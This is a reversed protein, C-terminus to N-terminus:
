TSGQYELLVFNSHDVDQSMCHLLLLQRGRITKAQFWAGKRLVSNMETNLNTKLVSSGISRIHPQTRNAKFTGILVGLPRRANPRNPESREDRCPPFYFVTSKIPCGARQFPLECLYDHDLVSQAGCCIAPQFVRLVRLQPDRETFSREPGYM